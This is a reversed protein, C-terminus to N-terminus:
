NAGIPIFACNQSTLSVSFLVKLKFTIIPPNAREKTEYGTYEYGPNELIRRWGHWRAAVTGAVRWRRLHDKCHQPRRRQNV